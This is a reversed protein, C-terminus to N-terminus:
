RRWAAFSLTALTLVIGAILRGDVLTGPSPLALDLALSGLLSGCISYLSFMLLGLTRVVYASVVVFFVGILGSTWVVPESWPSPPLVAHVVGGLELATLTVILAVYGVSFNVIAAVVPDGMRVSVQGNVAQQVTSGAGAVLTLLVAGVAFNQASLRGSVALLVALTTGIAAGVRVRTVPRLGGPGIGFRDVVLSSATTSAVLVVSFLAVGLLPVALGQVSVFTAGGLGGLLQWWQISHHKRQRARRTVGPDGGRRFASHVLDPLDHRVRLRTAPRVAVILGLTLLSISFAVIAAAISSGMRLSMEGSVRGQVAVAIGAALALLAGIETRRRDVHALHDASSASDPM